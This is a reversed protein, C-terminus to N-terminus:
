HLYLTDKLYSVTLICWVYSQILGIVIELLFIAILIFLPIFGLLLSIFNIIIFNFLLGSLINLLLHGACIILM